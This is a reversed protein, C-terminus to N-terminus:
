LVMCLSHASCLHKKTEFLGCCFSYLMYAFWHVSENNAITLGCDLSQYWNLMALAADCSSLSRTIQKAFSATFRSFSLCRM